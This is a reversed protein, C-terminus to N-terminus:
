WFVIYSPFFCNQTTPENSDGKREIMDVIVTRPVSSDLGGYLVVIAYTWTCNEEFHVSEMDFLTPLLLVLSDTLCM